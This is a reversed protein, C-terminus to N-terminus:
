RRRREVRAMIGWAVLGAVVVPLYFLVEPMNALDTAHHYMWTWSGAIIVTAVMAPALTARTDSM